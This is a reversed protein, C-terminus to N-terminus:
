DTERVWVNEDKEREREREKVIDLYLTSRYKERGCVCVTDKECYKKALQAGISRVVEVVSAPQAM